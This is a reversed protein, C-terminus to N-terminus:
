STVPKITDRMARRQCRRSSSSSFRAAISSRRCYLLLLVRRSGGFHPFLPARFYAMSPLEPRSARKVIHSMWEEKMRGNSWVVDPVQAFMKARDRSVHCVVAQAFASAFASCLMAVSGCRSCSVDVM